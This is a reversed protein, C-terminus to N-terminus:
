GKIIAPMPLPKYTLMAQNTSRSSTDKEYHTGWGTQWESPKVIIQNNTHDLWLRFKHTPCFLNAWIGYPSPALLVAYDSVRRCEAIAQEIDEASSLHELTHANYAAGFMKDPFPMDLEDALVGNPLRLVQPDLDLTWDGNAPEYSNRQMGVSLLPKGVADCYQRCWTYWWHREINERVLTAVEYTVILTSGVIVSGLVIKAGKKM